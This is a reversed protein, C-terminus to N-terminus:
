AEVGRNKLAIKAQLKGKKSITYDCDGLGHDKDSVRRILGLLRMHKEEEDTCLINEGAEMEILLDDIREKTDIM